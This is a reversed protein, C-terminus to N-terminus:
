SDLRPRLAAECYLWGVKPPPFRTGAKRLFVSAVVLMLGTGFDVARLLLSPTRGYLKTLYHYRSRTFYVGIKGNIKDDDPISSSGGGYHVITAQPVYAITYGAERVRHCLEIEEFYMFFAEDLGGLRRYLDARILLSCGHVWDGDRRQNEGWSYVHLPSYQLAVPRLPTYRLNTWFFNWFTPFSFFSPEAEGEGDLTRPGCVGVAPNTDMFEVLRDIAAPLMLTDPNLLFLYRGGALRSAQNNAAAFGVNRANEVVTVDPFRHRVMAVSGDTSANDVVIIEYSCCTQTRISALCEALFRGANYNVILVSVDVQTADGDVACRDSM